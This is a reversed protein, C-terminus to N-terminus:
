QRVAEFGTSLAQVGALLSAAMASHWCSSFALAPWALAPASPVHSGHMLGGQGHSMVVHVQKYSCCQRLTHVVAGDGMCPFVACRM